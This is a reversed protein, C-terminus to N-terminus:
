EVRPAARPAHRSLPSSPPTTMGGAIPPFIGVEDGAQLIYDDERALGNVFMMKVTQRPIGLHTEILSRLTTGEAISVPFGTQASAASAPKYERLTAFLRVTIQPMM